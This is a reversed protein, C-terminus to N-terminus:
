RKEDSLPESDVSRRTLRVRLMLAGESPDIKNPLTRANWNLEYYGAIQTSSAIM